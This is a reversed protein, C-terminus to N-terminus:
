VYDQWAPDIEVIKLLSLVAMVERPKASFNEALWNKGYELQEEEGEPIYEGLGDARMQTIIRDSMEKVFTNCQAKDLLNMDMAGQLSNMIQPWFIKTGFNAATKLLCFVGIGPTLGLFVEVFKEEEGAVLAKWSFRKRDYVYYEPDEVVVRGSKYEVRRIVEALWLRSESDVDATGPMPLCLIEWSIGDPKVRKMQLPVVGMHTRQLTMVNLGMPPETWQPLTPKEDNMGALTRAKEAVQNIVDQLIHSDKESIFGEQAQSMVKFMSEIMRALESTYVFLEKKDLSGPVHVIMWEVFEAFRITGSGAKDMAKFAEEHDAKLALPDARHEEDDDVSTLRLAGQLMCHCEEFNAASIEGTKDRDYADFLCKFCKLYQKDIIARGVTLKDAPACLWDVFEGFEIRGNENTDAEEMLSEIESANMGPSIAAMLITLEEISMCGDGDQDYRAFLAKAEAVWEEDVPLEEDEKTLSPLEAKVTGRIVKVGGYEKNELEKLRAAESDSMASRTAIATARKSAEFMSKADDELLEMTKTRPDKSM